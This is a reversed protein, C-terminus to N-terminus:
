LQRAKRDWDRHRTPPKLQKKGKIGSIGYKKLLSFGAAMKHWTSASDPTSTSLPDSGIGVAHGLKLILQLWLQGPDSLRQDRIETM